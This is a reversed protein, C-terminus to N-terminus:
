RKSTGLDANYAIIESQVYVGDVDSLDSDVLCMNQGSPFLGGAGDHYKLEDTHSVGPNCLEVPQYDALGEWIVQTWPIPDTGTLTWQFELYGQFMDGNSKAVEWTDTRRAGFGPDDGLTNSATIGFCQLDKSTLVLTSLDGTEDYAPAGETPCIFEDWIRFADSPDSEPLSDYTAVLTYEGAAQGSAGDSIKLDPFSAVGDVFCSTNGSLAYSAGGPFTNVSLEVGDPDSDCTNIATDLTGNHLIEVTVSEGPGPFYDFDTSTIVYGQAADAPQTGFQIGCSPSIDTTLNESLKTPDM